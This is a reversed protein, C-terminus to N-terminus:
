NKPQSEIRKPADSSSFIGKFAKSIKRSLSPDTNQKKGTKETSKARKTNGSNIHKLYAKSGSYDMPPGLNTM